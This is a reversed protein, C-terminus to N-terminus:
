VSAEVHAEVKTSPNFKSTYINVLRDFRPGLVTHRPSTDRDFGLFLVLVNHLINIIELISSM